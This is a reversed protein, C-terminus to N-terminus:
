HRGSYLDPGSGDSLLHSCPKRREKPRAKPTCVGVKTAGLNEIAPIKLGPESPLSAHAPADWAAAAAYESIWRWGDRTGLACEGRLDLERDKLPNLFSDAPRALGARRCPM